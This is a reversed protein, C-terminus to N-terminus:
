LRGPVASGTRARESARELALRRGRDLPDVALM